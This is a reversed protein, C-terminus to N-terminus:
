ARKSPTRGHVLWRRLVSVVDEPVGAPVGRGEVLEEFRRLADSKRKHVEERISHEEIPSTHIGPLPDPEINCASEDASM